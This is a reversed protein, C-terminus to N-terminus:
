PVNGYEMGMCLHPLIQLKDRHTHTNTPYTLSLTLTYMYMYTHHTLTHFTPFQTRRSFLQYYEQKNIKTIEREREREREREKEREREREREGECVRM